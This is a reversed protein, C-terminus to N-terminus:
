QKNAWATSDYITVSSLAQQRMYITIKANESAIENDIRTFTYTFDVTESGEVRVTLVATDGVIEVAMYLTGGIEFPYSSVEGGTDRSVEVYTGNSNLTCVRIKNARLEIGYSGLFVRLGGHETAEEGKDMSMHIVAKKGYGVTGESTIYKGRDTLTAVGAEDFNFFGDMTVDYLESWELSFEAYNNDTFVVKGTVNGDPLSPLQARTVTIKGNAYTFKTDVNGLYLKAPTKAGVMSLVLDGDTGKQYSAPATITVSTDIDGGIEPEAPEEITEEGFFIAKINYIETETVGISLMYNEAKEQLTAGPYANMMNVMNFYREANSGRGSQSGRINYISFSTFAFNQHCDLESMGLLAQLAYSVSGTRDAGATCHYYLPYNDKNALYKFIQRYVDGGGPVKFIDEYGGATIYTLKAGPILSGDKLLIGSETENRLDLEGKIGLVESMYKKGDETLGLWTGDQLKSNSDKLAGGRYAIGQQITKGLSTTYGGLDRVNCIGEINMVRPGLDTTKFQSETQGLVTNNAGMATIRLYYNTGKYLNYVEISRKTAGVEETIADSYDAKTAYEVLIKRTGKGGLNWKIEIPKYANDMKQYYDAVDAGAGAELFAKAEDVYPFVEEGYAPSIVEMVVQPAEPEEPTEPTESTGPEEPTEPTESTGPEEPTEPTESTGPEEPEESVDPTESSESVVESNEQVSSGGLMGTLADCGASAGITFASVLACIATLISRKKM